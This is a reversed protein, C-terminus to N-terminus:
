VDYMVCLVMRKVIDRPIRKFQRIPSQVSWMRHRIMLCLKLTKVTAAAVMM